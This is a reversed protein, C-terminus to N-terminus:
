STKLRVQILSKSNDMVKPRLQNQRLQRKVKEPDKREKLTPGMMVRPTPGMVKERKRKPETHNTAFYIKKNVKERREM